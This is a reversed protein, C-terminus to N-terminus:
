TGLGRQYPSVLEKCIISMDLTQLKNDLTQYEQCEYVENDKQLVTIFLLIILEGKIDITNTDYAKIEFGEDILDRYTKKSDEWQDISSNAFLNLSFFTLFIILIIKKMNM